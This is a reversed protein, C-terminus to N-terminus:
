RNFISSVHQKNSKRESRGMKEIKSKHEEEQAKLLHEKNRVIGKLRSIEGEAAQLQSNISFVESAMKKRESNYKVNLEQEIQFFSFFALFVAVTGNYKISVQEQLEERVKSRMNLREKKLRGEVLAVREEYESQVAKLQQNYEKFVSERM